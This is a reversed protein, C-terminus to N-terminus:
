KQRRGAWGSGEARSGRAFIDDKAKASQGTSAKPTRHKAKPKAQKGIRADYDRILQKWEDRSERKAKKM